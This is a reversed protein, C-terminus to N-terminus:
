LGCFKERKLNCKLFGDKENDVVVIVKANAYIREFWGTTDDKEQYTRVMKKYKIPDYESM